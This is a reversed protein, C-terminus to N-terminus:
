EIMETSFDIIKRDKTFISYRGYKDKSLEVEANIFKKMVEETFVTESDGKKYVRGQRLLLTKTFCPLLEEAYHTVYILTISGQEAIKEITNLMRDRATIDLGSCPEDLILVKPNAILSRAILVSEREGKSMLSYSQDVKEELGVKGLLMKARKVDEDRIDFDLGLTGFLGSLVIELASENNYYRDFCSASVLGIDRRFKLLNDDNYVEGFVKLSGSTQMKYGALISLLTTKGSGNLGFLNWHEGYGIEWNIDKLLYRKGIKCSLGKTEIINGDM